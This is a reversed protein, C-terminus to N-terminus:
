PGGGPRGPFQHGDERPRFTGYTVGRLYLKEDGAYLFKGRARPRTLAHVAPSPRVPEPLSAM